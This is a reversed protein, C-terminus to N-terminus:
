GVAKQAVRRLGNGACPQLGEDSKILLSLDVPFDEALEHDRRVQLDLLLLPGDGPEVGTAGQGPQHSVQQRGTRPDPGEVDAAPVVQVLEVRDHVRRDAELALHAVRRHQGAARPLLALKEGRDPPHGGAALHAEVGLRDDHQM